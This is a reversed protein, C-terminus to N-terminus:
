GEVCGEERAAGAMGSRVGSERMCVVSHGRYMVHSEKFGVGREVNKYTEGSMFRRGMGIQGVSRFIISAKSSVWSSLESGRIGLSPVRNKHSAIADSKHMNTVTTM